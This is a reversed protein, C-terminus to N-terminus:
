KFKIERIGIGPINVDVTPPGSKSRPRYGVFGGGGPLQIVIGTHGDPTIDQGGKGLGLVFDEAEKNGGPLERVGSNEGPKGVAREGPMLIDRPSAEENFILYGLNKFFDRVTGVPHTVGNIFGDLVATSPSPPTGTQVDTVGPIGYPDSRQQQLGQYGPVGAGMLGPAVDTM